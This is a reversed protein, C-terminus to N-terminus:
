VQLKFIWFCFCDTLYGLHKFKTESAQSTLLINRQTKTMKGGSPTKFSKPLNMFSDLTNMFLPPAKTRIQGIQGFMSRKGNAHFFFCTLLKWWISLYRFIEFVFFSVPHINALQCYKFVQWHFDLFTGHTNWRIRGTLVLM